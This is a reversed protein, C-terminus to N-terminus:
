AIKAWKLGTKINLLLSPLRFFDRIFLFILFSFLIRLTCFFRNFFCFFDLNPFNSMRTWIYGFQTCDSMWLMSIRTDLVPNMDLEPVQGNMSATREPFFQTLALDGRVVPITVFAIGTFLFFMKIFLLFHLVDRASQELRQLGSRPMM